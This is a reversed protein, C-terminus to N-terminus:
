LYRRVCNDIIMDGYQKWIADFWQPQTQENTWHTGNGMQYVYSAYNTFNGIYYGQADAQVGRSYMSRQTEGSRYATAKSSGVMDLTQRAVAYVVSDSVNMLLKFTKTNYHIEPNM